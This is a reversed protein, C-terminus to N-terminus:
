PEQFQKFSDMYEYQYVWKSTMLAFDKEIQQQQDPMLTPPQYPRNKYGEHAHMAEEKEGGKTVNNTQPQNPQQIYFSNLDKRTERFQFKSMNGSLKDLSSPM